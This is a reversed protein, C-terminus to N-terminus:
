TRDGFSLFFDEDGPLFVGDYELFSGKFEDEDLTEAVLCMACGDTKISGSPAFGHSPVDEVFKGSETRGGALFEQFNGATDIREWSDWPVLELTDEACPLYHCQLFMSEDLFEYFIQCIMWFDYLRYAVCYNQQKIKM